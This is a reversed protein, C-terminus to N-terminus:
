SNPIARAVPENLWDGAYRCISHYRTADMTSM